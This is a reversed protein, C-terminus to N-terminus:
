ETHLQARDSQRDVDIDIKFGQTQSEAGRWGDPRKRWVHMLSRAGNSMRNVSSGYTSVFTLM